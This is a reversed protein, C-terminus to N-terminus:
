HYFITKSKLISICLFLDNGDIQVIKGGNELVKLELITKDYEENGNFVCIEKNQFINTKINSTLKPPTYNQIHKRKKKPVIEIDDTTIHRANLKEVANSSSTLDNLEEITM